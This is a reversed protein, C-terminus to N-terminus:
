HSLFDWTWTLNVWIFPASSTEPDRQKDAHEAVAGHVWSLKEKTIQAVHGQCSFINSDCVDVKKHLASSVNPHEKSLFFYVQSFFDPKRHPDIHLSFYCDPPGKM